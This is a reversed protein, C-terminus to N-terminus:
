NLIENNCDTQRIALLLKERELEEFTNEVEEAGGALDVPATNHFLAYRSEWIEKTKDLYEINEGLFEVELRYTDNWTKWNIVEKEAKDAETQSLTKGMLEEKANLWRSNAIEENTKAKELAGKLGLTDKELKLIHDRLEKKTFTIRSELFSINEQVLERKYRNIAQELKINELSLKQLNVEEAILRKSLEAVIYTRSTKHSKKEAELEEKIRRLAQEKAKSKEKTEQLFDESSKVAETVSKRQDELLVLQGRQEDLRLFSYPPNFPTTNITIASLEEKLQIITQELEFSRQLEFLQHDYTLDIKQLLEFQQKVFSPSREQKTQVQLENAAKIKAIEEKIRTQSELISKQSEEYTSQKESDNTQALSVNCNTLIMSFITALLLIFRVTNTTVMQKRKKM